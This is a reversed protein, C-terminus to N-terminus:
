EKRNKSLEYLEDLSANNYLKPNILGYTVFTIQKRASFYFNGWYAIYFGLIVYFIMGESIILVLITMFHFGLVYRFTKNKTFLIYFGKLMLFIAYLFIRIKPAIDM